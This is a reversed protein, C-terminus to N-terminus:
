AHDRPFLEAVDAGFVQQCQLPHRLDVVREVDEIRQVHVRGALHVDLREAVANPLHRDGLHGDLHLPHLHLDVLNELAVFLVGSLLLLEYGLLRSLPPLLRDQHLPEHLPVPQETRLDSVVDPLDGLRHSNVLVEGVTMFYTRADLALRARTHRRTQGRRGAALAPVQDDRFAPNGRRALAPVQTDEGRHTGHLRLVQGRRLPRQVEERLHSGELALLGLLRRQVFVMRLLVLLLLLLLLKALTDFRLSLLLLRRLPLM